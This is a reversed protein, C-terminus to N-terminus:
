KVVIHLFVKLPCLLEKVAHPLTIFRSVIPFSPSVYPCLFVLFSLITGIM